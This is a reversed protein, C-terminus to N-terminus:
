IDGEIPRITLQEVSGRSPLLLADVMPNAVDRAVMMQARQHDDVEGWMPTYTAGPRVDLLRIRQRACYPRMVEVLGRQAYKSMCYLASQEFPTFAAVSTIVQIQGRMGDVPRQASMIRYTEQLLLFTAEVNIGIVYRVDQATLEAFDGFRGVGACHILADLRPFVAQCARLVALPDDALDGTWTRAVVGHREALDAVEMLDSDTRSTLFLQLAGFELRREVLIEAVARGLGKGAGTILITMDEPMASNAKATSHFSAVSNPPIPM